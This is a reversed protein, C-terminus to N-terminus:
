WITHARIFATPILKFQLMAENLPGVKISLMGKFYERKAVIQRVNNSAAALENVSSAIRKM